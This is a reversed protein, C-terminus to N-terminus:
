RPPPSPPAAGARLPVLGRGALFAAIAEGALRHGRANPHTPPDTALEAPDCLAEVPERRYADFLDLYPIGRGACFDRLRRHMGGFPGTAYADFWKFIPFQVIALATGRAQLRDALRGLASLNREEIPDFLPFDADPDRRKRLDALAAFVIRALHSRALLPRALGWPDAVVPVRWEEYYRLVWDGGERSYTDPCAFDNDVFAVLVLDPDFRYGNREYWLVEQESNYGGVGANLVEVTAAALPGLREAMVSTFGDPSFQAWEAVSDGLVLIRFAGPAKGVRHDRGFVGLPHYFPHDAKRIFYLPPDVITYCTDYNGASQGTIRIVQVAGYIRGALFWRAYGELFLLAVLVAGAALLLNAAVKRFYAM